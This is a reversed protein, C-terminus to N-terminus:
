ARVRRRYYVNPRRGDTMYGCFAAVMVIELLVYPLLSLQSMPDFNSQAILYRTGIQAGISTAAWMVMLVSAVAPTSPRRGMTMVVFTFAFVAFMAQPIMQIGAIRSSLSYASFLMRSMMTVSFFDGFVILGAMVLVATAVMAVASWFMVALAGGLKADPSAALEDASLARWQVSQPHTITTTM